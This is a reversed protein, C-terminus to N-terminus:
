SCFGIFSRVETVNEPRKWEKLAKIKGEDPSIGEASLKYGLYTVSNQYLKCKKPKLKINAKRLAEFVSRLHEEHELYTLVYSLKPVIQM